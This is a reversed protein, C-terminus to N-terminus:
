QRSLNVTRTGVREAQADEHTIWILAKPGTGKREVGGEQEHARYKSSDSGAREGFLTEDQYAPADPTYQGRGKEHKRRGFCIDTRGHSGTKGKLPCGSEGDLLVIEAGGIGIAIALAMRQGEGGSLTSWERQWYTRDIGWEAALEVPDVGKNISKTKNQDNGDQSGSASQRSKFSRITKLLDQPTGPLM